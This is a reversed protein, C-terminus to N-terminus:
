RGPVVTARKFDLISSSSNDEDIRVVVLSQKFMTMSNVTRDIVILKCTKADVGTTLLQIHHRHGYPEEPCYGVEGQGQALQRGHHAQYIQQQKEGAEARRTSPRGPSRHGRLCRSMPDTARSVMVRGAVLQGTHVL